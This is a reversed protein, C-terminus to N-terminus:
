SNLTSQSQHSQWLENQSYIEKKQNQSLQYLIENEAQLRTSDLISGAGWWHGASFVGATAVVIAAATWATAPHVKFSM